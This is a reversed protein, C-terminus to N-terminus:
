AALAPRVGVARLADLILDLSVNQGALIRRVTKEDRGLRTALGVKSLGQDHM